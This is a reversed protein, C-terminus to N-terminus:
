EYINDNELLNNNVDYVRNQEIHMSDNKDDGYEVIYVKNNKKSRFYEIFSLLYIFINFGNIIICYLYYYWVNNSNIICESSINEINYSNYSFIIITTIGGIYKIYQISALCIMANVLTMFSLFYTNECNLEVLTKNHNITNSYYSFLIIGFLLVMSNFFYLSYNIINSM